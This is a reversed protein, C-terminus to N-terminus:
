VREEVRRARRPHVVLKRYIKQARLGLRELTKWKDGKRGLESPVWEDLRVKLEGDVRALERALPGPKSPIRGAVVLGKM